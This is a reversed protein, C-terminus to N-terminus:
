SGVGVSNRLCAVRCESQRLLNDTVLCLFTWAFQGVFEVGLCLSGRHDVVRASVRARRRPQHSAPSFLGGGELPPVAALSRPFRAVAPDLFIEATAAQVHTQEGGKTLGSRSPAAPIGM